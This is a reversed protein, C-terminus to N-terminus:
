EPRGKQSKPFLSMQHIQSRMVKPQQNFKKFFKLIHRRGM